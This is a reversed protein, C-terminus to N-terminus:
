RAILPMQTIHEWTHTRMLAHTRKHTHKRSLLQLLHFECLALVDKQRQQVGQPRETHVVSLGDDGGHGAGDLRDGESSAAPLLLRNQPTILHRSFRGSFLVHPSPPFPIFLTLYADSQARLTALSHLHTPAHMRMHAYTRCFHSFSLYFPLSHTRQHIPYAHM